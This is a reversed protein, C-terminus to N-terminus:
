PFQADPLPPNGYGDDPPYGPWHPDNDIVTGFGEGDLIRANTSPNSLTVNDYRPNYVDDDPGTSIWIIQSTEGPAFTVTGHNGWWDTYDVTVTETSPKSLTM